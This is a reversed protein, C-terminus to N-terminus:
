GMGVIRGDPTVDIRDALPRKPLGPMTEIEGLYVVTFGAGASREVRRV